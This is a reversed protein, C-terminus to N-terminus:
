EGIWIAASDSPTEAPYGNSSPALTIRQAATASVIWRGDAFTISSPDGDLPIATEHWSRGDSSAIAYTTQGETRVRSGIVLFGSPSSAVGAPLAV